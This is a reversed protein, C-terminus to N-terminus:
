GLTSSNNARRFSSLYLPPAVVVPATPALSPADVPPSVQLTAPQLRGGGTQGPVVPTAAGDGGSEFFERLRQESWGFAEAPAELDDCFYEEQLAKVLQSQLEKLQALLSATSM